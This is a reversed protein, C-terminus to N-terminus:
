VLLIVAELQWFTRLKKAKSTGNICYKKHHIDKGITKKFFTAFTKDSFNLVYGGEMEFLRELRRQERDTFKSM